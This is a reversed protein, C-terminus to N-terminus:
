LLMFVALHANDDYKLKSLLTFILELTKTFLNIFPTYVSLFYFTGLRMKQLPHQLEPNKPLVLL